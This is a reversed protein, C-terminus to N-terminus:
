HVKSAPVRFLYYTRSQRSEHVGKLLVSKCGSGELGLERGDSEYRGKLREIEKRREVVLRLM